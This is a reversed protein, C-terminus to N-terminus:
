CDERHMYLLQLGDHEQESCMEIMLVSLQDFREESTARASKLRRM